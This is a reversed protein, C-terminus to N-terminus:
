RTSYFFCEAFYNCEAFFAFFVRYLKASLLGSFFFVRCFSPVRCLVAVHVVNTWTDDTLVNASHGNASVSSLCICEAFFNTQRTYKNPVRCLFLNKERRVKFSKRSEVYLM